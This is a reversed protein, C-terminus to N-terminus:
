YIPSLEGTLPSLYNTGQLDRDAWHIASSDIANLWTKPISSNEVRAGTKNPRAINRSMGMIVNMITASVIIEVGAITGIMIATNAV